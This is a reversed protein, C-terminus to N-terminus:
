NEKTKVPGFKEQLENMLDQVHKNPATSTMNDGFRKAADLVSEGEKRPFHDVLENIKDVFDKQQAENIEITEMSKISKELFGALTKLAMISGEKAKPVTVGLKMILLILGCTIETADGIPSINENRCAAAAAVGRHFLSDLKKEDSM